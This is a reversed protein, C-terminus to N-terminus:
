VCSIVKAKEVEPQIIRIKWFETNKLEVNEKEKPNKGLENCRKVCWNGVPYLSRSLNQNRSAIISTQFIYLLFEVGIIIAFIHTANVIGYLHYKSFFYNM